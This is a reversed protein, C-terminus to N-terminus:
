NDGGFGDRRSAARSGGGQQAQGAAPLAGVRATSPVMAAMSRTRMGLGRQRAAAGRRAATRSKGKGAVLALASSARPLKRVAGAKPLVAVTETPRRKKKKRSNNSKRLSARSSSGGGRGTLSRLSAVRALAGPGQEPVPALATARRGLHPKKGRKKRRKGGGRHKKHKDRSGGELRFKSKHKKKHHHRRRHHHHERHSQPPTEEGAPPPQELMPAAHSRNAAKEFARMAQIKTFARKWKVAADGNNQGVSTVSNRRKRQAKVHRKKGRRRRKKRVKQVDKVVGCARWLKGPLNKWRPLTVTLLRVLQFGLTALVLYFMTTEVDDEEIHGGLVTNDEALNWLNMFVCIGQIVAVAAEAINIRGVIFPRSVAIWAALVFFLLMVCMTQARQEEKTSGGMAGVFLAVFLKHTLLVVFGEPVGDLSSNPRFDVFIIGYTDIIHTKHHGHKHDSWRKKKEKFHVVAQPGRLHTWLWRASWGLLACPGVLLTVM